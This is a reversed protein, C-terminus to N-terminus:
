KPSFNFHQGWRPWVLQHRLRNSIPKTLVCFHWIPQNGLSNCHCVCMLCAYWVLSCWWIAINTCARTIFNQSDPLPKIIVKLLNCFLTEDFKSNTTPKSVLLSELFNRFSHRVVLYFKNFSDKQETWKTPLKGHKAMQTKNQKRLENQQARRTEAELYITVYTWQPM